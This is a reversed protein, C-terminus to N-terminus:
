VMTKLGTASPATVADTGFPPKESLPPSSFQTAEFSTANETSVVGGVTLMPAKVPGSLPGCVAAIVRDSALVSKVAASRVSVLAVAVSEPEPM